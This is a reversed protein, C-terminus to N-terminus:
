SCVQPLWVPHTQGQIKLVQFEGPVPHGPTAKPSVACKYPLGDDGQAGDLRTWPMGLYRDIKEVPNELLGAGVALHTQAREGQTDLELNPSYQTQGCSGPQTQGGKLIQNIGPGAMIGSCSQSNLVSILFIGQYSEKLTIRTWDPSLGWSM